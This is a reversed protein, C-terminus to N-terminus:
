EKYNISNVISSFLPMYKENYNKENITFSIRVFGKNIKFFYEFVKYYDGKQSLIEYYVEYGKKGDKSYPKIKYAKVINQKKSIESSKDLFAKLDEKINWVQVYGFIVNDKSSFDNHYIIEGGPFDQMSTKFSKPLKYTLKKDKSIYQKFDPMEATMMATYKIKNDFKLSLGLLVLILGVIIITVGLRKINIEM